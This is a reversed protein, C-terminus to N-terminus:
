ELHQYFCQCSGVFLTLARGFFYDDADVRLVHVDRERCVVDIVVAVPDVLTIVRWLLVLQTANSRLSEALYHALANAFYFAIALELLVCVAFAVDNGADHLLCVGLVGQEVETTDFGQQWLGFM